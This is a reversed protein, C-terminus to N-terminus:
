FTQHSAAGNPACRRLWEALPLAVGLSEGKQGESRGTFIESRGSVGGM